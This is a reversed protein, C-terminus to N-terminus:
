VNLIEKVKKIFKEADEIVTKAEDLSAIYFAEYDGNERLDKDRSIIDYYDEPLLGTKIFHQSFLALLGSHTKATLGKSLLLATTAHYIAYYGRSIADEYMETEYLQYAAKLKREAKEILKSIKERM